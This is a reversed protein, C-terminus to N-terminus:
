GGASYAKGNDTVELIVVEFDEDYLRKEDQRARLSVLVMTVSAKRPTESSTSVEQKIQPIGPDPSIAEEVVLQIGPDTGTGTCAADASGATDTPGPHHHFATRLPLRITFDRVIRELPNIEGGILEADGYEPTGPHSTKAALLAVVRPPLPIASRM